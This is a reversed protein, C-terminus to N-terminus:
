ASAYRKTWYEDAERESRLALREWLPLELPVREVIARQRRSLDSWASRLDGDDRDYINSWLEAWETALPGLARYVEGSHAAKQPYRGVATVVGAIAAAAIAVLSVWDPLRNLVTLVAGLSFSVTGIALLEGLRSLRVTLYGYYRCMRDADIVGEWILRVTEDTPPMAPM